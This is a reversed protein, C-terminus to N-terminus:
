EDIGLEKKNLLEYLWNKDEEDKQELLTYLETMIIQESYMLAQQVGEMHKYNHENIGKSYLKREERIFKLVNEIIKQYQEKTNM